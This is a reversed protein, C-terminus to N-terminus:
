AAEEITFSLGLHHALSIEWALEDGDVFGEIMPKGLNVVTNDAFSTRLEPTITITAQGSGNAVVTSAVQHVYHQGDKVLSLWYGELVAYGANLGDVTISTGGTVAGNLLASGPAGQKGLALPVAIRLGEQKAQLLRSLVVRGKELPLPPLTVDVAFRNGLRNVRQIAGGLGPRVVGGFDILRMSAAQPHIGDPLEIM